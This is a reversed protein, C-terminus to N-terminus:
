GHLTVLPDQDPLYVVIERIREADVGVGGSWTVGGDYAVEWSGASWELGDNDVIVLHCLKGREVGRLVLDVRTGWPVPVMTVEADVTRNDDAATWKVAEGIAASGGAMPPSPSQGLAWRSAAWGGFGVVVVLAAAVGMAVLRRRRADRREGCVRWLTREVGAAQFESPDDVAGAADASGEADEASLNSLLRPLPTLEEHAARCRPCAALHGRVVAAETADLAGLVYGGLEVRMGACDQPNPQTPQTPQTM